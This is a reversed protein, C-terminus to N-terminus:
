SVSMSIFVLSIILGEQSMEHQKRSTLPISKLLLTERCVTLQLVSSFKDLQTLMFAATLIQRAQFSQTTPSVKCCLQGFAEWPLLCPQPAAPIRGMGQPLKHDGHLAAHTCAPLQCLATLTSYIWIGLLQELLWASWFTNTGISLPCLIHTRVGTHWLHTRPKITGWSVQPVSPQTSLGSLIM